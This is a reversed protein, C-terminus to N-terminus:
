TKVYTLVTMLAHRNAAKPANDRIAPTSPRV